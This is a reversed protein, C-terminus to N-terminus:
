VVRLKLLLPSWDGVYCTQKWSMSEDIWDSYSDAEFGIGVNTLHPMGLPPPVTPILPLTPPTGADNM